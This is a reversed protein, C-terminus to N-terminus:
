KLIEIIGPIIKIILVKVLDIVANLINLLYDDTLEQPKDTIDSVDIDKSADQASSLAGTLTKAFALLDDPTANADNLLAKAQDIKEGLGAAIKGLLPVNKITDYFKEAADIGKGLTEKAAAVAEAKRQEYLAKASSLDSANTVLAKQEETLADYAAQADDILAKSADTYVAEGIANIKDVVAQAAQQNAVATQATQLASDLAAKAADVSTQPALETDNVGKAADIATSLAAAAAPYDDKISNYYTEADAIATQLNTKDAVIKVTFHQIATDKYNNGGNVYYSILYAGVTMAQPIDTGFVGDVGYVMNGVTTSGATVLDQLKGNYVLGEKATPPVVTADAPFAAKYITYEKELTYTNGEVSVHVTAKYDGADEPAASLQQWTVGDNTEVKKWYQIPYINARLNIYFTAVSGDLYANASKGDGCTTKEPTRLTIWAIGDILYDCDSRRACNAILSDDNDQTYIVYHGEEAAAPFALAGFASFTLLLALLVSISKRTYTKM